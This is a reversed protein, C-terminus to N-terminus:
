HQMDQFESTAKTTNVSMNASIDSFWYVVCLYSMDWLNCDYCKHKGLHGKITHIHKEGEGLLNRHLSFGM